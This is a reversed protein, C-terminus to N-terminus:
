GDTREPPETELLKQVDEVSTITSADVRYLEAVRDWYDSYSLDLVMENGDEVHYENVTRYEWDPEFGCGDDMFIIAEDGLRPAIGREKAKKGLLVLEKINM